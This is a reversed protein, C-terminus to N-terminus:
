NLNTPKTLITRYQKQFISEAQKAKAEDGFIGYVTSGSGSLSTFFAGKASFEDIIEGIKPYAPVVIREFDNDFIAKSLKSREFYNAFNPRDLNKNLHKKIAKYAWATSISIDPIVLLYFGNIPKYIPKLLDGIGNGIQTGSAIFFPVDAGIKTAIGFLEKESVSLDYLQILGKLVSAADSSGGGLGAGPPIKKSITLSIGGLNPFIEKAALYAKACTNMNDTPIGPWDISIDIGHPQKQIKIVDHLAVEQFVTHINHYGDPRKNKIQLGINIKAHAKLELFDM